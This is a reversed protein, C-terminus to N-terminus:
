AAHHNHRDIEDIRKKVHDCPKIKRRRIWPLKKRSEEYLPIAADYAETLYKLAISPNLAMKRDERLEGSLRDVHIFMRASTMGLLAIKDRLLAFGPPDHRLLYAMEPLIPGRHKKMDLAVVIREWLVAQYTELAAIVYMAVGIRESRQARQAIIMTALVTLLSGIVAGVAGIFGAVLAAVADSSTPSAFWNFIATM